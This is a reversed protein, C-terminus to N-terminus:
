RLEEERIERLRDREELLRLAERVVESASAYLGSTVKEQILSELKPSLSVNMPRAGRRM